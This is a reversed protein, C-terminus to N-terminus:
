RLLLRLNKLLVVSCLLFVNAGYVTCVTYGYLRLVTYGCFRIVAFGCFRIVAFGYLRIVTYGYLRLVTYGCFRIDFLDYWHHSSVGLLLRNSLRLIKTIWQCVIAVQFPKHGAMSLAAFM